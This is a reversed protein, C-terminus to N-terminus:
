VRGLADAVTDSVEPSEAKRRIEEDELAAGDVVLLM